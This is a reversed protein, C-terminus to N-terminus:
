NNNELIVNEDSPTPICFQQRGTGAGRYMCPDRGKIRRVLMVMAIVVVVFVAVAGFVGVYLAVDPESEAPTALLFLLFMNNARFLVFIGFTFLFQTNLLM